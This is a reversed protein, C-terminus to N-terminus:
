RVPPKRGTGDDVPTVQTTATPAVPAVEHVTPEPLPAPPPPKRAPGLVTLAYLVLMAVILLTLLVQPAIRRAWAKRVKAQLRRIRQRVQGPKEGREAALEEWTAKSDWTMAFMVEVDDRTLGIQPAIEDVFAMQQKTELAEDARMSRPPRLEDVYNPQDWPKNRPPLDDQAVRPADRTKERVVDQHRHFDVLKGDLIKRALGLVRPLTTPPHRDNRRCWLTERVGSILEDKDDRQLDRARLREELFARIRPHALLQAYATHDGEPARAAPVDNDPAQAPAVYPLPSSAPPSGALPTRTVPVFSTSPTPITTTM